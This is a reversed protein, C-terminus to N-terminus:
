AQFSHIFFIFIFYFHFFSYIFQKKFSVVFLLEEKHMLDLLTYILLQKGRQSFMQIEELIIIIPENNSKANLMVSLIHDYADGYVRNALSRYSLQNSITILATEDNECLLGNVSAITIKNYNTNKKLINISNDILKRKGSSTIGYVLLCSSISQTFAKSLLSFLENETQNPIETEIQEYNVLRELLYNRTEHAITELYPNDVIKRKTAM